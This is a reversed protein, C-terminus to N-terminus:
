NFPISLESPEMLNIKEPHSVLYDYDLKDIRSFIEEDIQFSVENTPKNINIIGIGYDTNYVKIDLFPIKEQLYVVTKWVDGCWENTWGQLNLDRAEEYSKAKVSAAKNPPYCDHMVIFGNTCIYKLSNLVDKLSARFTHLGDIFIVQPPRNQLSDRQDLFFQDSTVEFYQNRLNNLDRRINRFITKKTFLFNPDVAIKNRCKVKFFTKGDLVGIEIYRKLNHASILSNIIETRHM